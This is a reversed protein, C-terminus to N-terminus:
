GRAPNKERAVIM